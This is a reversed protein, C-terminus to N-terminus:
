ASHATEAAAVDAVLNGLALNVDYLHLGYNSGLTEQVVPRRDGASSIVTVQLWSAGDASQCSATYQDPFEVWPTGFRLRERAGVVYAGVVYPHLPGSGGGISAPNVCLVQQGTSATQGSMLSIGQGPRGFQSGPPPEGLFSSYAIVCRNEGTSTCAPISRFTGGVDGGIPVQVNGGLLIALVMRDLVAPDPAVVRQLLVTLLAAGQSHGIFVIPRGDNYHEIYDNWGKLLSSYAVDVAAGGSLGLQLLGHQTVQRYIPAYVKCVQSFRAAQAAAVALEAPQIALDANISGETSVTPYLYFCDFRSSPNPSTHVVQPLTGPLGVTTSDLDSTCPDNAVGPRCLWV